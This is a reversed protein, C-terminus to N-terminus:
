GTRGEGDAMKRRKRENGRESDSIREKAGRVTVLEKRLLKNEERIEATDERIERIMTKMEKDM